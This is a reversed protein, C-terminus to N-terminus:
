PSRGSTTYHHGTRSQFQFDGNPLPRYTWKGQHRLVHHHRCLPGLHDTRTPGGKAWEMRHDLDSVIAPARCGPHICTPNVAETRRRQASTPRRRVLGNALSHSGTEDDLSWRWEGKKQQDAIQRAIDAIV